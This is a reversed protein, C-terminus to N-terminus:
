SGYQGSIEYRVHMEESTGASTTSTNRVRSFLEFGHTLRATNSIPERIGASSATRSM